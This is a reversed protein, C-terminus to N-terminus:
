SAPGNNPRRVAFSREPHDPDLFLSFPQEKEPESNAEIVIAPKEDHRGYIAWAVGLMTQGLARGGASHVVRGAVTVPASAPESSAAPDTAKLWDIWQEDTWEDPDAPPVGALDDV